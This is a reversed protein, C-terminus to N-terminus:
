RKDSKEPRLGGDRGLLLHVDDSFMAARMVPRVKGEFEIEHM